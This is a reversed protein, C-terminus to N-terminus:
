GRLAGLTFSCGAYGQEEALHLVREAVASVSEAGPVEAGVRWFLTMSSVLKIADVDSGMVEALPAGTALHREIAEAVQELRQRLVPDALYARAEARDAIGYHRATSSRGLGALQPFIYWVWHSRKRGARLEALATAFGSGVNEQAQHFRGLGSM